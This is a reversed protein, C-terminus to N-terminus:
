TQCKLCIHYVSETTGGLSGWRRTNRGKHSNGGKSHPCSRHCVEVSYPLLSPLWEQSYIVYFESKWAALLHEKKSAKITCAAVNHTARRQLRCSLCSLTSLWRPLSAMPEITWFSNFGILFWMFKFCSRGWNFLGTFSWGQSVNQNCGQSLGKFSLIWIFQTPIGSGLFQSIIFTHRKTNNVQPLMTVCCYYSM